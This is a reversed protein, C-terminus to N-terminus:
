GELAEVSSRFGASGAHGGGGLSAAVLSVDFGPRGRLSWVVRNHEDIFFVASFLATDPNRRLLEEGIESQWVSSCVSPVMWAAIPRKVAHDCIEAVKRQKYGLITVGQAVLYSDEVSDCDEFDEVLKSWRHFERPELELAASVERSMPLHWQWLDRDQVYLLLGPPPTYPHFHEWALVAGSKTMDFTISLGPRELGELMEKASKHHDVVVVQEMQQALDVLVVAPYSFDVIWVKSGKALGDPVPEGYQVPIYSADPGLVTYSAWAAAFGDTCDKHYLVYM